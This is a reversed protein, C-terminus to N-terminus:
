DTWIFANGHRESQGHLLYESNQLQQRIQKLVERLSVQHQKVYTDLADEMIDHYINKLLENVSIDLPQVLRTCGAPIQFPVINRSQLTHLVTATSHFKTIDLVLL